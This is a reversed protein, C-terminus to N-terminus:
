LLLGKEQALDAALTIEYMTSRPIRGLEVAERPLWKARGRDGDLSVLIATATQHHLHVEIDILKVKTLCKLLPMSPLPREKREGCM